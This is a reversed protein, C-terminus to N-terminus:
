LSEARPCCDDGASPGPASGDNSQSASSSALTEALRMSYATAAATRRPHEFWDARDPHASRLDSVFQCFMDLM